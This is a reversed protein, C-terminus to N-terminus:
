LRIREILRLFKRIKLCVIVASDLLILPCGNRKGQVASNHSGLSLRYVKVKSLLFAVGYEHNGVQKWM